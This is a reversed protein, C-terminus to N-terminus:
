TDSKTNIVLQALMVEVKSSTLTLTYHFRSMKTGDGPLLRRICGLDKSEEKYDKWM